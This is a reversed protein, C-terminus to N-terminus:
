ISINKYEKYIVFLSGLFLILTFILSPLFAITSNFAFYYINWPALISIGVSVMLISGFYWFIIPILITSMIKNTKCGIAMSFTAYVGGILFLIGTYFLIYINPKTVFVESMFGVPLAATLKNPLSNDFALKYISLCILTPLVVILGGMIFNISIKTLFYKKKSVKLLINKLIGSNKDLLYTLGYVASALIICIIEYGMMGFRWAMYTNQYDNAMSNLNEIAKSSLAAADDGSIINISPLIDDWMAVFNVVIGVILLASILKWNVSKKLEFKIM